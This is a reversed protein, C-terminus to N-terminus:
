FVDAYSIEEEEVKEEMYIYICVYMCVYLHISIYIYRWKKAGLCAGGKVYMYTHIYIYYVYIDEV